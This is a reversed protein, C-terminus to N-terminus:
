ITPINGVGVTPDVFIKVKFNKMTGLEPNFVESYQTLVTQLQDLNVKHISSWNLIIKELWNCGMLSAGTGKIVLLPLTVSQQGYGVTAHM